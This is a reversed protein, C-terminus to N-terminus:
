FSDVLKRILSKYGFNKRAYNRGNDGIAALDSKSTLCCDDILMSLGKFNGANVTFGCRAENIVLSSEGDVMGIIPTGSSMYSQIKGPLTLQFVPIDSLSFVLVDAYHYFFPMYNSPYHGLLFVHESLGHLEILESLSHKFRGDGIILFVLDELHNSHKFGLLVNDFDQAEGINGAFLFIKKQSWSSIMSRIQIDECGGLELDRLYVNEVWQPLYDIKPKIVGMETLRKKFGKSSVLLYDALSYINKCLKILIKYGISSINIKTSSISDPWIDLVWIYLPISFKFKCFIAPLVSSIPSLQVAFILDYNKDRLKFLCFLCSSLAFSLYNLLLMFKNKGRAIQPVRYVQIDHYQSFKSPQNKYESFITGQPYNPTSTLVEVYHGNAQLGLVLENVRFNEPWFYQSVVLVKKRKM